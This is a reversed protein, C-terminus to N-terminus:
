YKNKIQHMKNQILRERLDLNEKIHNCEICIRHFLHSTAENNRHISACHHAFNALKILMEKINPLEEDTM